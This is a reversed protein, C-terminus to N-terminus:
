SWMIHIFFRLSSGGGWTAWMEQTFYGRLIIYFCITTSVAIKGVPAVSDSLTCIHCSFDEEANTNLIRGVATDYKCVTILNHCRQLHEGTVNGMIFHMYGSDSLTHTTDRVPLHSQLYCQSVNHAHVNSSIASTYQHCAHLHAGHPTIVTTESIRQSVDGVKLLKKVSENSHNAPARCTCYYKSLMWPPAALLSRVGSKGTLKTQRNWLLWHVFCPQEWVHDSCWFTSCGTGERGGKVGHKWVVRVRTKERTRTQLPRHPTQKNSQGAWM